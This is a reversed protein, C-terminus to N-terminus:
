IWLLLIGVDRARGDSSILWATELVPSFRVQQIGRIDISQVLQSVSVVAHVIMATGDRVPQSDGLEIRGVLM